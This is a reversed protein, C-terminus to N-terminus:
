TKKKSLLPAQKCWQFTLENESIKIFYIIYYFLFFFAAIVNVLVGIFLKNICFNCNDKNRVYQVSLQQNHFHM